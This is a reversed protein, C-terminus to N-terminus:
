SRRITLLDAMAAAMAATADGGFRCLAVPACSRLWISTGARFSSRVFTIDLREM